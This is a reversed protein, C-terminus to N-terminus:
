SYSLLLRGVEYDRISGGAISSVLHIGGSLFDLLLFFTWFCQEIVVTVKNESESWKNLDPISYM